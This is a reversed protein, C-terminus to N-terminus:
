QVGGTAVVALADQWPKKTVVLSKGRIIEAELLQKTPWYSYHELGLIQYRDRNDGEYGQANFRREKSHTVLGLWVLENVGTNTYGPSRDLHVALRQYVAPYSSPGVQGAENALELCGGLVERQKNSLQSVLWFLQEGPNRATEINISITDM